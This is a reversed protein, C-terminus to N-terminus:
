GGSKTGGLAKQLNGPFSGLAVTLELVTQPDNLRDGYLDRL